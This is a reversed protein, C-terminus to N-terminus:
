RDSNRRRHTLLLAVIGTLLIATAAIGAAQRFSLHFGPHSTSSFEVVVGGTHDIARSPPASVPTSTPNAELYEELAKVREDLDADTPPHASDPM